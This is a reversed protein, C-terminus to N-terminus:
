LCLVALVGCPGYDAAQRGEVHSIGSIGVYCGMCTLHFSDQGYSFNHSINRADGRAERCDQPGHQM